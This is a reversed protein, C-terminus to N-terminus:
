KSGDELRYITSIALRTEGFECPLIREDQGGQGQQAKDFVGIGVM